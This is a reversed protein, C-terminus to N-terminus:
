SPEDAHAGQEAPVAPAPVATAALSVAAFTSGPESADESRSASWRRCDCGGDLVGDCVSLVEPALATDQEDGAGAGAIM